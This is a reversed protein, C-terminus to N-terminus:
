WFSMLCSMCFGLGSDVCAGEQVVKKCLAKERKWCWEFKKFYSKKSSFWCPGSTLICRSTFIYCSRFLFWPSFQFSFATRSFSFVRQFSLLSFRLTRPLHFALFSRWFLNTPTWGNIAAFFVFFFQFSFCSVSWSFRIICSAIFFITHQFTVQNKGIFFPHRPPMGLTQRRGRPYKKPHTPMRLSSCKDMRWSM